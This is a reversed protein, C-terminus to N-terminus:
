GNLQSIDNLMKLIQGYEYECGAVRCDMVLDPTALQSLECQM